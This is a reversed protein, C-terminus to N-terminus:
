SGSKEGNIEDLLALVEEDAMIDQMSEGYHLNRIRGENDIVFQAPMRGLKLLKVQQGFLRAIVHQPDGIGIFPMQHKHWWEAFEDPGEPGVAMVEANRDVFKQYDQRLQAM